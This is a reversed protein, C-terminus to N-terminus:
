AVASLIFGKRAAPCCVLLPVPPKKRGRHEGRGQNQKQEPCSGEGCPRPKGLMPPFPSSGEMLGEPCAAKQEMPTNTLAM